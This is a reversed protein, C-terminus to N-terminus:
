HPAWFWVLLPKKGDAFSALDVKKASALDLVSMAPLDSKIAVTKAVSKPAVKSPVAKANPNAAFSAMPTALLATFCLVGVAALRRQTSSRKVPTRFRDYTMYDGKSHCHAFSSHSQDVSEAVIFDRECPEACTEDHSPVRQRSLPQPTPM